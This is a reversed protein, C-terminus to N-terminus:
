AVGSAYGVQPQQKPSKGFRNPGPTGDLCTFVLLVIGGLPILTLLYWWGRKDTDHLRRVTVAIAPVILGLLTVITFVSTGLAADIASAVIFVVTMFLAFWWYESRRARGSFNAYQSLASKIADTFSVTAGQTL